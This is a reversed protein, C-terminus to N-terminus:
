ATGSFAYADSHVGFTGCLVLRYVVGARFTRTQSYPKGIKVFCLEVTNVSYVEMREALLVELRKHVAPDRALVADIEERLYNFM